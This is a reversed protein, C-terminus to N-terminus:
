RLLMRGFIICWGGIQLSAITGAIVFRLRQWRPLISPPQRWGHVTVALAAPATILTFPWLLLPLVALMLAIRDFLVRSTEPLRTRESRGELCTPCLVRGGFNVRCVACLYRGCGDCAIEARNAAHFFCNAEGSGLAAALPVVREARLARFRVQEFEARCAPCRALDVGRWYVEPVAQRCSPCSLKDPIM